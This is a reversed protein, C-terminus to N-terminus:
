LAQRTPQLQEMITKKAEAYIKDKIGAGSLGDTEMVWVSTDIKIPLGKSYYSILKEREEEGPLPIDLTKFRRWIASDLLHGHNTAAILISSNPFMDINQLLNIVVRNIEGVDQKDGREKGVADLEDLFLVVPQGEAVEFVKRINSGTSGLYSGVISDWRAYVMDLGLEGALATAAWTKGVGPDGNFLVTNAIKLGYKQFEERHKYEFIIQNLEEIVQIPAVLDALTVNSKRVEFMTQSDRNRPALTQLPKVTYGDRKTGYCELTKRIKTAISERGTKFEKDALREVAQYFESDGKYHAQILNQVDMVQM